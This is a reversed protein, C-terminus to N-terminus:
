LFAPQALWISPALCYAAGEMAEADAGAGLNRGQKLEQGPKLSSSHRPLELLFGKGGWNSQDGCKKVALV